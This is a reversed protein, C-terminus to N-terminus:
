WTSIGEEADDRDRADRRQFHWAPSGIPAKTEGGPADVHKVTRAGRYALMDAIVRDGHNERASSPDVHSRSKAHGISGDPWFVYQLCEDLAVTDRNIFEGAALARSYELMAERKSDPSNAWGPVRSVKGSIEQENERYFVNDYGIGLLNKLFNRNQGGNSEGVVLPANGSRKFWLGLANVVRAFRYPEMRTTAVGCVKEGTDANLVTACSNSAGTGASVDCGIVYNGVPPKGHADLVCWLRADGAPDDHWVDPAGTERDFDLAGVRVPDMVHMARHYEVMDKDFFQFSSGLFDMDLEQAVIQEHPVEECQEDYWPSRYGKYGGPEMVFEYGPHRDHWDKDLVELNYEEGEGKTVRYLGRAKDPHLSWHVDLRPVKLEGRQPGRQVTETAVSHYANGTGQPTSNYFISESVSYLASLARWADDLPVAAFEDFMAGLCRGGRAVDGTTAAGTVVAENDLNEIRFETRRYAPAMWGPLHKVLFMFKEFLCDPNGRKDVLDANRSILKFAAWERFMWWHLFVTLYLWTLGQERSKLTTLSNRGISNHIRLITYDQFDYTLFPLVEPLRPEYIWVFTNVWFLIDRRSAMWLEHQLGEDTM